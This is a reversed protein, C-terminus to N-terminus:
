RSGNLQWEPKSVVETRRDTSSPESRFPILQFQDGNEAETSVSSGVKTESFRTPGVLGLWMWGPRRTQNSQGRMLPGWGEDSREESPGLEAAGRKLYNVVDTTM